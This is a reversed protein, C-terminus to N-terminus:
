LGSLSFWQGLYEEKSLTIRQPSCRKHSKSTVTAIEASSFMMAWSLFHSWCIDLQLEANEIADGQQRLVMNTWMGRNLHRDFIKHVSNSSSISAFCWKKFHKTLFIWLSRIRFKFCFSKVRGVDTDRACGTLSCFAKQVFHFHFFHLVPPVKFKHLPCDASRSIIKQSFIWWIM